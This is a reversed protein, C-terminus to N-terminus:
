RGAPSTPEPRDVQSPMSWESVAEKREDIEENGQRSHMEPNDKDLLPATVRLTVLGNFRAKKVTALLPEQKGCWWDPQQRVSLSMPETNQIRFHGYTTTANRKPAQVCRTKKYSFAWLDNYCETESGTCMPKKKYLFAWLDNYCETESGTCM